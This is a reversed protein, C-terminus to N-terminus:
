FFNLFVCSPILLSGYRKRMYESVRKIPLQFISLVVDFVYVRLSLLAESLDALRSQELYAKM